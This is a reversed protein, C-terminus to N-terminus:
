RCTRQTVKTISAKKGILAPTGVMNDQRFNTNLSVKLYLVLLCPVPKSGKHNISPPLIDKLKGILEGSSKEKPNQKTKKAEQKKKNKKRM